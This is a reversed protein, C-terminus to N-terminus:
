VLSFGLRYIRMLFNIIFRFVPRNQSRLRVGLGLADGVISAMNRNQLRLTFARHAVQSGWAKSVRRRRRRMGEAAEEEM